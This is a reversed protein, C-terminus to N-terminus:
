PASGSPEGRLPRVKGSDYALALPANAHEYPIRGDPMLIHGLFEEEFTVIGSEITATCSDACWARPAASGGSSMRAGNADLAALEM